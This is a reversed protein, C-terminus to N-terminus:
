EIDLKELLVPVSCYGSWVVAVRYTGAAPGTIRVRQATPGTVLAGEAAPAPAGAAGSSDVQMLAPPTPSPSWYDVWEVRTDTGTGDREPDGDVVVFPHGADLVNLNYYDVDSASSLTADIVGDGPQSNPPTDNPEQEPNMFSTLGLLLTYPAIQAAPSKASVRVLYVGTTPLALGGIVSAQGSEITYDRGNATGDDDDSELLTTGDPAYVQLLSDRSFPPVESSLGTDLSAWLRHGATAQVRYYDVDGPSGISGGIGRSLNPSLTLVTGSVPTDNPEIEVNTGPCALGDGGARPGGAGADALCFSALALGLLARAVRRTHQM